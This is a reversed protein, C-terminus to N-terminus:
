PPIAMAPTSPAKPPEQPGPVQKLLQEDKMDLDQFDNASLKFVEPRNSAKVFYVDEKADKAGVSVRVEGRDKETVAIELVPADLGYDKGSPDM